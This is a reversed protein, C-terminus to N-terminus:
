NSKAKTVLLPWFLPWIDTCKSGSAHHQCLLLYHNLCMSLLKKVCQQADAGLSPIGVFRINRTKLYNFTSKSHYGTNTGCIIPTGVGM